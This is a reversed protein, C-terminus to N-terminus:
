SIFVYWVNVWCRKRKKRSAKKWTVIWLFVVYMLFFFYRISRLFAVGVLMWVDLILNQPSKWENYKNITSVWTVIPWISPVFFRVFRFLVFNNPANAKKMNVNFHFFVCCCCCGCCLCVFRHFLLFFSYMVTAIINTIRKTAISKCLTSLKASEKWLRMRRLRDWTVRYIACNSFYWNIMKENWKNSRINNSQRYSFGLANM